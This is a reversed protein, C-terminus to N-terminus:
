LQQQAHGAYILRLLTLWFVGGSRKKNKTVEVAPDDRGSGRESILNHNPPQEAVKDVDVAFRSFLDDSLEIEVQASPYSSPRAMGAM